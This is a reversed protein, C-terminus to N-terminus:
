IEKIEDHEVHFMKVMKSNFLNRISDISIGTIFTQIELNKITDCFIEKKKEDLESPLDDILLLYSIGFNKLLKAEALSMAGILIKQEGRSLVNKARYEQSFISLDAKHAGFRTFGYRFDKELEQELIDKLAFSENWGPSFLLHIEKGPLLKELMDRLIPYFRDLYQKRLVTIQESLSIFEKDWSRIIDCSQSCKNKLLANRQKLIKQMNKWIPFFISHEVHFMGKDIFERRNKAVGNILEYSDSYVLQIPMLKALEFVSNLNQQNYRIKLLGDQYRELGLIEHNSEILVSCCSKEKKIIDCPFRGRFSRAFGLYYIAELLSTKGCGNDGYFLNIQHSPFIDVFSLNRFNTITIRSLNM